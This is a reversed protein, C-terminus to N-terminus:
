RNSGVFESESDSRACGASASCDKGCTPPCKQKSPRTSRNEKM